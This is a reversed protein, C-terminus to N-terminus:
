ECFRLPLTPKTYARGSLVRHQIKKHLSTFFCSLHLPYTSTTIQTNQPLLLNTNLHLWKRMIKNIGMYCPDERALIMSENHHITKLLRLMLCPFHNLQKVHASPTGQRQQPSKLSTNHGDCKGVRGKRVKTKGWAFKDIM